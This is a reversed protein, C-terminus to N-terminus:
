DCSGAAGFRGDGMHAVVRTPERRADAGGSPAISCAVPAHQIRATRVPHVPATFASESLHEGARLLVHWGVGDILQHSAVDRVLVSASVLDHRDHYVSIVAEHRPIRQRVKRLGCLLDFSTRLLDAIERYLRIPKQSSLHSPCLFIHGVSVPSLSLEDSMAVLCPGLSHLMGRLLLETRLVHRRGRFSVDFGKGM